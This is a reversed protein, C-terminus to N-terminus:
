SGSRRATWPGSADYCDTKFTGRMTDGDVNGIFTIRKESSVSGFTIRDGDLTGDLSGDLSCPVGTVKLDGTLRDGDQSLTATFGGTGFGTSWDGAWAGTLTATETESESQSESESQKPGGSSPPPPASATVTLGFDWYRASTPLRDGSAETTLRVLRGLADIRARFDVAPNSEANPASTAAAPEAAGGTGRTGGPEGTRSTGTTGASQASGAPEAGPALAGTFTCGDRRARIVSRLERASAAPDVADMFVGDARVWRADPGAGAGTGSPTATGIPLVVRGRDITGSTVPGGILGQRFWATRAHPDAAGTVHRRGRTVDYRFSTLEVRRAAEALVASAKRGEAAKDCSARNMVPPLVVIVTTTVVVVVTVVSVVVPTSVGVAGAGGFALAKGVAAGAKGLVATAKAALTAGPASAGAGSAATSGATQTAATSAQVPDAIPAGPATGAGAARVAETALHDAVVHAGGAVVTTSAVAIGATKGLSTKRPPRPALGLVVEYYINGNQVSNVTGHGTAVAVQTTTSDPSPLLSQVSDAFRRAEEAREPDDAVAREIMERWEPLSETLFHTLEEGERHAAVAAWAEIRENVEPEDDPVLGLVGDRAEAWATTGIAAALHEAADEAPDASRGYAGDGQAGEAM